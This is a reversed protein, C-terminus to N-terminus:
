NNKFLNENKLNILNCCFKHVKAFLALAPTSLLEHLFFSVLIIFIYNLYFSAQEQEQKAKMQKLFENPDIAKQYMM